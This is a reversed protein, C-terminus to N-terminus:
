LDEGQSALSSAGWRLCQSGFSCASGSRAVLAWFSRCRSVGTSISIPNGQPGWNRDNKDRM